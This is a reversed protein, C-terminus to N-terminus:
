HGAALELAADGLDVAKLGPWGHLMGLWEGPIARAGCAAGVLSGAIAAVALGLGFLFGYNKSNQRYRDFAPDHIKTSYAM